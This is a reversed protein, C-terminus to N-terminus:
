AIVVTQQIKQPRIKAIWVLPLNTVMEDKGIVYEPPVGGSLQAAMNLDRLADALAFDRDEEADARFSSGNRFRMMRLRAEEEEAADEAELLEVSIV